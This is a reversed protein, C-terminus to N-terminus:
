KKPPVKSLQISRNISHSAQHFAKVNFYFDEIKKMFFFTSVGESGKSGGNEGFLLFVHLM